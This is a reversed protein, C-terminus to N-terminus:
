LIRGYRGGGLLSTAKWSKEFDAGEKGKNTEAFLHRSECNTYCYENEDKLVAPFRSLRRVREYVKQAKLASFDALM